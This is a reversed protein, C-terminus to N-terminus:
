FNIADLAAGLRGFLERIDAELLQFTAVLAISILGVILAYEIATAGSEDKLFRMFVSM